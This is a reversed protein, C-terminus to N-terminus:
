HVGPYVLFAAGVSPSAAGTFAVLGNPGLLVSPTALGHVTLLLTMAAFAAGAIVARGDHRRVGVWALGGSALAAVVSVVGMVVLHGLPTVPARGEDLLLHLIAVPLTASGAVLALLSGLRSRLLREM